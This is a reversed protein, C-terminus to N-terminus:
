GSAAETRATTQQQCAETHHVSNPMGTAYELGQVTFGLGLAGGALM